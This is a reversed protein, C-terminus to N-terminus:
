WGFYVVAVVSFFLVTEQFRIKSVLFTICSPPVM